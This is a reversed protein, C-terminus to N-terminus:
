QGLVRNSREYDSSFVPQEAARRATRMGAGGKETEDFGCFGGPELGVSVQSVYEGPQRENSSRAVVPGQSGM